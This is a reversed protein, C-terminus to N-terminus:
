TVGEGSRPFGESSGKLACGVRRSTLPVPPQRLGKGGGPIFRGLMMVGEKEMIGGNKVSFYGKMGVWERPLAMTGPGTVAPLRHLDQLDQEDEIMEAKQDRGSTKIERKREREYSMQSIYRVPYGRSGDSTRLWLSAEKGNM